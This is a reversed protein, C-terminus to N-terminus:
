TWVSSVPTWTDSIKIKVIGNGESTDIWVKTNDTVASPAAGNTGAAIVIMEDSITKNNSVTANVTAVSSTLSDLSTKILGNAATLDAKTLIQQGAYVLRASVGTVATGSQNTGTGETIVEFTQAGFTYANTIQTVALNGTVTLENSVNASGVTLSTLNATGSTDIYNSSNFYLPKLMTMKDAVNSTNLTCNFYNTTIANSLTTTGTVTLASKLNTANTVELSNLTAKGTTSLTSNITVAGATNLTYLYAAGTTDIRYTHNADFALATKMTVWKKSNVDVETLLGNAININTGTITGSSVTLDGSSITVTGAISGGPLNISGPKLYYTSGFYFETASNLKFQAAAGGDVAKVTSFISSNEIIGEVTLNNTKLLTNATINSATINSATLDSSVTLTGSVASNGNLTIKDSTGTSAKQITDVTLIKGAALTLNGSSLILDKEITQASSPSTLVFGDGTAIKVASSSATPYYYLASDTIVDSSNKTTLCYIKETEGNGAAPLSTVSTFITDLAAAVGIGSIANSSIATYTNEITIKETQITLPSYGLGYKFKLSGDETYYFRGPQMDGDSTSNNTNNIVEFATAVYNYVASSSVPLSSNGDVSTAVDIKSYIPNTGSYLYFKNNDDILYISNTTKSSVPLNSYDTITGTQFNIIKGTPLSLAM